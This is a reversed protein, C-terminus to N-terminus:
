HHEDQHENRREDDRHEPVIIIAAHDDHRDMRDDHGDRHGEICGNQFSTLLVAGFLCSFIRILSFVHM